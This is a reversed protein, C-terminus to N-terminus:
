KDLSLVCSQCNSKLIEKFLKRLIGTIWEGCELHNNYLRTKEHRFGIWFTHKRKRVLSLVWRLCHLIWVILGVRPLVRPSGSLSLLFPLLSPHSRFTTQLTSSPYVLLPLFLSVPPLLSSLPPIFLPPLNRWPYPLCVGRSDINTWLKLSYFRSVYM